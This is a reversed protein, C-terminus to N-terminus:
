VWSTPLANRKELDLYRKSLIDIDCFWYRKYIERGRRDKLGKDAPDKFVNGNNDELLKFGLAELISIPLRSEVINETYFFVNKVDKEKSQKLTEDILHYAIKDSIAKGRAQPIVGIGNWFIVSKEDCFLKKFPEIESTVIETGLNLQTIDQICYSLAYGVDYLGKISAILYFFGDQSSYIKALDEIDQIGFSELWGKEWVKKRVIQLRELSSKDFKFIKIDELSFDRFENDESREIIIGLAPLLGIQIAKKLEEELRSLDPSLKIKVALSKFIEAQNSNLKIIKDLDNEKEYKSVSRHDIILLKSFEIQTLKTLSKRIKQFEGITITKNSKLIM